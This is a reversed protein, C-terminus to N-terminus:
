TSVATQSLIKQVIKFFLHFLCKMIDYMHLSVFCLSQCFLGVSCLWVLYLGVFLRTGGGCFTFLLCFSDLCLVDKSVLGKSLLIAGLRFWAWLIRDSPRSSFWTVISILTVIHSNCCHPQFPVTLSNNKSSRASSWALPAVPAVM